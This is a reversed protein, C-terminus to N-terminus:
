NSKIISIAFSDDDFSKDFCECLEAFTVSDIIKRYEFIDAGEFIFNLLSNAIDDVSDFDRIFEAMMVRKCRIFDRESLGERKAKKIHERVKALVEHPFDSEAYISHFATDRTISYGYTYSENILGSEFLINYLEGARSFLMEDLITLLVDRRLRTLTDGDPKEDKIGIEFVTQAVPMIREIVPMVVAKCYPVDPLVPAQQEKRKPLAKDVTKIIEEANVDGCVVLAMNSYRYFSGYCDYLTKANIERITKETGLVDNSLAGRGFLATLLNQSVADYPSDNCMRIEQTIIGRESEVNEDTFYPTYVFNILEALASEFNETCSFMYVTKNNSTYANADAGVSALIETADVGDASSFLKHELFHAIGSPFRKKEGDVIAGSEYVSGFRVGLLATKLTMKKPFVYIDLGSEHNIMFYKEGLKSDTFATIQNSMATRRETASVRCFICPIHM